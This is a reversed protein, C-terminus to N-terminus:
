RCADEAVEKGRELSEFLQRADRPSNVEVAYFATEAATAIAELSKPDPNAKHRALQIRMAELLIEFAEQKLTM